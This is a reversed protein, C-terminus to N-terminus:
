IVYYQSINSEVISFSSSEDGDFFLVEQITTKLPASANGISANTTTGASGVDGSGVQTGNVRFLSNVGSYLASWVEQTESFDGGLVNVGAYIRREDDAAWAILSGSSFLYKNGGATIKSVAFLTLPQAYSTMGGADTLMDDVGDCLLAPKGNELVIGTASDYIKPQKTTDAQTFEYANASQDYWTKVYGNAGSCFTDLATADISSGSFGIDQEQDDSDRRVKVCNTGGLYRLSLKIVASDVLAWFADGYIDPMLSGPARFRGAFRYFDRYSVRM